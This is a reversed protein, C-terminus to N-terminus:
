KKEKALGCPQQDRKNREKGLLTTHQQAPGDDCLVHGRSFRSAVVSAKEKKVSERKAASRRDEPATTVKVANVVNAPDLTTSLFTNVDFVAKGTPAESKKAEDLKAQDLPTPAQPCGQGTKAVYGQGAVFCLQSGQQAGAGARKRSLNSARQQETTNETRKDRLSGEASSGQSLASEASGRAKVRADTQNQESTQTYPSQVGSVLEQANGSLPTQAVAASWSAGAVIAFKLAVLKVKRKGEM